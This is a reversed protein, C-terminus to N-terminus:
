SALFSLLEENLRAAHTAFLGHAAGEYVVLRSGGILPATRRGCVELPAGMDADGHILLTPIAVKGTDARLDATFLTRYLEAAARPSCDLALGVLWRALGPSIPLADPNAGLGGFFPGTMGAVWTTRDAAMRAMDEVFLGVDIGDPNDETRMMFPTTSSILVLRRVRADGHRSLYRVAEGGGMACAALTVDRLDLQDLVSALDDALTDYDYGTWPWDSRGCGRRDYTVCRFGRDALFTAQFEWMRCNMMATNLFVVPRGSGWDNYWLRTGDSAALSSM